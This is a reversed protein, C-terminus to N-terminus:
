QQNLIEDLDKEPESFEKIDFTEQLTQILPPSILTPPCKGMYVNKIGFKKLYLLNSITHKDCRTLFISMKIENLPIRKSIYRLIKYILSYDYFSDLHFINERNITCCMSLTFTDNPLTEFFNDFYKKHMHPYNSLGTIFFHKIENKLIKDVIKDIIKNIEKINYGVKVPPKQEVKTFGRAELASKILPEYNNDLIKIVGPPAIPDTTYLRGRYLYEVRQLTGKTMLIAGPFSAFDILSSELGAGFHGKLNPHSKLKPFAHAMLMEIGHTYVNIETNETASLVQELKKFDTGSVLIAKGVEASFSVLTPTIDGYLQIQARSVERAINYYADLANEIRDKAYKETFEKTPIPSLLHLVAYYAEDYEKGLRQLEIIKIFISKSLFLIIEYLDKQKPSYSQSRKIFYKEGKRIADTLNFRKSYKFYSKTTQIEINNEICHKEYLIRSQTIYDYLGSIIDQFQDQSYEVNTVINFFANIIAHKTSENEVGFDKLKLVYFALERIYLLIIEQISPLTPNVPCIGKVLCEDPEYASSPINNFNYM